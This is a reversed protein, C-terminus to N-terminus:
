RAVEFLFVRNGAPDRFEAVQTLGPVTAKGQYLDRLPQPHDLMLVLYRADYKKAAAFVADVSETPIMIAPHHTFNYFSPPDIVMVRDSLRANQDLWHGVDRYEADRLNWLPITSTNTDTLPFVASAFFYISLVAALMTFSIRFFISAQRTNWTRRRRAIWQVSTDIGLPVVAVMFPILASSSHFLTGRWSPFTFALTMALYLLAAYIMGAVVETRQRLKWIGIIAFPLLFLQLVSFIIIALNRVAAYAKSEVISGIGWALYNNLTLASSDFRFLDDYSTMWVTKIGAGPLPTGAVVWNRLFWPSMTLLYGLFFYFTFLLFYRLVRTTHQTNRTAHFLLVLPAVVLLLLGDARSLHSLAAFIGALFVLRASEEDTGRAILYLCISATLAYVAFNDPSVWYITFLGSFTTLLGAVWADSDRGTIRRALHFAVLPLLSSLLIFPIQAVRYSVGFLFFLPAVLLSPLPMWYLNSPHPLGAPDDLFNWLVDEVFGRGRALNEAVHITYSADMYGANEVPLATVIRFALTILFLILYPHRAVFKIM